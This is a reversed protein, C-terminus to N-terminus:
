LLEHKEEGIGFKNKKFINYINNINYYSGGSQEHIAQSQM